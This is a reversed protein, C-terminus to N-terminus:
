NNISNMISSRKNRYDLVCAAFPVFALGDVDYFNAAGFVNFCFVVSFFRVVQLIQRLESYGFNSQATWVTVYKQGRIFFTM